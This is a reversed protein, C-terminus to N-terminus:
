REDEAVVVLADGENLEYEVDKFPILKIGYNEDANGVKAGQKVGICVEEDRQQVLGMIDAFTVQQPFSDFYLEVPKVYIESGDEQFLDDYVKQIEPEESIQAFLMSVLRNSIIFDNVGAQHILGQNNSDLVETVIKTTVIGGEAKIQKRMSRLLLLVVITESDIREANGDISLNQPLIIIDDFEFPKLEALQEGDFPNIEM